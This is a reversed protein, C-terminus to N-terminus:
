SVPPKRARIQKLGPRTKCQPTWNYDTKGSNRKRVHPFSLGFQEAHTRNLYTNM